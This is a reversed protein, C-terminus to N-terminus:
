AILLPPMERLGRCVQTREQTTKDKEHNAPVGQLGTPQIHPAEIETKVDLPMKQREELGLPWPNLSM